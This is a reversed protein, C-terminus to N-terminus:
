KEKNLNRKSLLEQAQGAKTTQVRRYLAALQEQTMKEGRLLPDLANMLLMQVGVLETFIHIEMEARSENGAVRLLVDRAWERLNQGNTEARTLLAQEESRTFRTAISQTRPERGKIRRFGVGMEVTNSTM